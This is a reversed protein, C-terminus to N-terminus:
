CFFKQYYFLSIESYIVINATTCKQKVVYLSVSGKFPKKKRFELVEEVNQAHVTHSWVTLMFVSLAFRMIYCRNFYRM